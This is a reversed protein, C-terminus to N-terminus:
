EEHSVVAGIPLGDAGVEFKIRKPKSARESLKAVLGALETLSSETTANKAMLTSLADAVGVRTTNAEVLGSLLGKLDAAGGEQKEFQAEATDGVDSEKKTATIQAVLIKVAADLLSANEEMQVKNAQEREARFREGEEKAAAVMRKTEEQAESIARKTEDQAQAIATRAAADAQEAQAQAATKAQEIQLDAAAQAQTAAADAQAKQAAIAQDSQAQIQAVEKSFDPPPQEAPQPPPQQIADIADEVAQGMRANRAIATGLTKVTDVSLMGTQVAPGLNAFLTTVSTIAEQMAQTDRELTEQITSDTEIDIRYQRMGDKQLLAMVEEWTPSALIRKGEAEVEPPVPPPQQGTQQAMQQAQQMQAAKQEVFAKEATTPIQLGTISAFTKQSFHESMIEAKMRLLDRIFRQVERQLRQLRMTGWQSKLKQAGLTEHPNSVGRMIDGLGTIEYIAQIIAARAVFLEKLVLALKEIPMIWIAKDLGGLAAVASANEIPLMQNDGAEIIKAVEALNSAYAGRVKLANTIKDIRVTIRNLEEAQPKYKEYLPAPILSTSDEIAYVPRPMPWFGSLHLPDDEIRLPADSTECIFLVRTKARDWIEYFKGTKLLTQITKDYAGSKKNSTDPDSLTITDAVEKGFMDILDSYPLDHEFALWPLEEWTKGPGHLFSNWEVHACQASEDYVEQSTEGEAELGLGDGEDGAMPRFKPVYKVRALGRGPLVVDLVTQQIANDFDYSDIAYVLSREIVNAAVKGVPDPDRFRRRVDPRPTSNYLAPRLTETNSWLINFSNAKRNKSRYLSWIEDACKAWEEQNGRALELESCWRKVIGKPTSEVDDVTALSESPSAM